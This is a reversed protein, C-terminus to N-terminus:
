EGEEIEIEGDIEGGCFPCRTARRHIRNRCHPCFAPWSLLMGGSRGQRSFIGILLLVVILIVVWGM